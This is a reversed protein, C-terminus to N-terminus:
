FFFFSEFTKASISLINQISHFDKIKQYLTILSIGNKFNHHIFMSLILPIIETEGVLSLCKRQHGINEYPWLLFNSFDGEWYSGMLHDLILRENTNFNM